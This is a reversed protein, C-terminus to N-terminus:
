GKNKENDIYGKIRELFKEANELQEIADDKLAVYFDDYDSKNRIFFAHNLIVSYEKSLKNTKIYHKNFHSILGSHKKSDFEDYALLARVSHFVAYYSRNISESYYKSELLLRSAQINEAAKSLRYKSLNIINENALM